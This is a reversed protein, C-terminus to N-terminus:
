YLPEAKDFPIQKLHLIVFYVMRTQIFLMDGPFIFRHENSTGTVWLSLITQSGGAVMGNHWHKPYKDLPCPHRPQSVTPGPPMTRPLVTRDLDRFSGIRFPGYLWNHFINQHSYLLKGLKLILLAYLAHWILCILHLYCAFSDMIIQFYFSTLIEHELLFQKTHCTLFYNIEDNYYCDNAIGIVTFHLCIYHGSLSPVTM